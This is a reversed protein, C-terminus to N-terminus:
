GPAARGSARAPKSSIGRRSVAGERARDSATLAYVALLLPAVILGILWGIDTLWTDRSQVWQPQADYGGNAAAEEAQQFSAAMAAQEEASLPDDSRLGTNLTAIGLQYFSRIRNLDVTSAAAAMGWRASAAYSAQDVPTGAHFFPQSLVTQAILVYPLLTSAKDGRDFLASIALGIAVAAVGALGIGIVLEPLPSGLFAAPQSAGALDRCAAVVQGPRHVLTIIVVMIASQILTIVGLVAMKSGIYSVLSLGVARERRFIPMEKAIERISNATGLWTAGIAMLWLLMTAQPATQCTLVNQGQSMFMLLVLGAFFPAQLLMLALNRRDSGLVALYRRVLVGFQRLRGSRHPRSARVGRLEAELNARALPRRVREDYVDSRAFAKGWDADPDRELVRFIDALDNAGKDAFYRLAEDPAGFYALKGGPALYVVLDAHNIADLSHTVVMVIRGDDALQRMLSVVQAENAPDLGSTPEDLFLLAPKTLLEIAVSARKRQGGSLREIVTDARHALGLEDLVENVRKTRAAADVDPPFRLEAAYGLAQRVTLDTHLIDSQPVMGLDNRLEDYSQYLDRGGFQVAGRDAPRGATLANLLTTKGAGSPGVLAVLTGPPIALDVASLLRRKRDPTWVSLGAALLWAQGAPEYAELADGELRFVKGGIGILDGERVSARTVRQGNVFTGNHSDLDVVEFGDGVRRVEAHRRSVRLDDVVVDNEPGRGIRIRSTARVVSRLGGLQSPDTDRARSGPEAPADEAADARASMRVMPGDAAGLNLELPLDFRGSSIRAGRLYTGRSSQDGIDVGDDAFTIVLHRRSVRPDEVIVECAPDRGVLVPRSAPFAEGNIQFRDGRSDPEM